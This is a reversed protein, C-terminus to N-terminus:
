CIAEKCSYIFAFFVGREAYMEMIREEEQTKEDQWDSLM